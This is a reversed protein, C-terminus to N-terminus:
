PIDYEYCSDHAGVQYWPHIMGGFVSFPKSLKWKQNYNHCNKSPWYSENIFIAQSKKVPQLQDYKIAATRRIFDQPGSTFSVPVFGCCIKLYLAYHKLLILYNSNRAPNWKLYGSIWCLNWYFLLLWPQVRWHLFESKKVIKMVEM